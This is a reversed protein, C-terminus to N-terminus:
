YRRRRRPIEDEDEEAYGQDGEWREPEVAKDGAEGLIRDVWEQQEPSRPPQYERIEFVTRTPVEREEM